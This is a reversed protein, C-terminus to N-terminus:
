VPLREFRLISTTLMAWRDCSRFCISLCALLWDGVCVAKNKIDMDSMHEMLIHCSEEQGWHVAAHLPTWGDNDTVNM